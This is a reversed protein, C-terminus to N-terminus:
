RRLRERLAVLASPRGGRAWAQRASGRAHNLADSGDDREGYALTFRTYRVVAGDLLPRALSRLLGVGVWAAGVTTRDRRTAAADVIARAVTDASYAAPPRPPIVGATADVNHWFPTAVPGPDVECVAVDEGAARLDVRLADLFGRLGHKGAVYSSLGGAALTSLVSATAVIAGRSARLDPLAIRVADMPMR